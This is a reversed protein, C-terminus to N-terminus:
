GPTHEVLVARGTEGAVKEEFVLGVAPAYTKEEVVEPELPNWDRTVLVDTFSGAPVTVEGGRALVEGLDEAEGRYLEQRYARGVEPAALMVIGPQAGDVGAEFSGDHDVLRGEEYNSVDEGLYWVTGDRDQAFWDFTDEVLVGDQTVTDRVVTATIGLIERTEDTVEVVIDEVDGGGDTEEYVWRSGPLLPLYPNDITAVFDAPDLEPAWVGGDDPDIVPDAVADDGCAPALLGLALVAAVACRRRITPVTM